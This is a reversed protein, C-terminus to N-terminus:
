VDYRLNSMETANSSESTVSAGSQYTSNTTLRNSSGGGYSTQRSQYFTFLVLLTVITLCFFEPILSAALFFAVYGFSLTAFNRMLVLVLRMALFAVMLGVGIAILRLNKLKEDVKSQMEVKRKTNSATSVSANAFDSNTERLGGLKCGVFLILVFLAVIVAFTFCALIVEALDRVYAGYFSAVYDRSISVGYYISVITITLAVVSLIAGLVYQAYSPADWLILCARAWLFVWLLITLAFMLQSIKDLLVFTLSITGYGMYAVSWFALRLVETVVVGGLIVFFVEKGRFTKWMLGLVGVAVAAVLLFGTLAWGAASIEIPLYDSMLYIDRNTAALEEDLDATCSPSDCTARRAARRAALLAEL